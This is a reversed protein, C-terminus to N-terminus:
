RGRPRTPRRRKPRRAAAVVAAVADVVGALPLHASRWRVAPRRISRRPTSTPARATTSRAATARSRWPAAAALGAAAGGRGRGGGGGAGAAAPPPPPVRSSQGSELNVLFMGSSADDGGGGGRGGGGAAAATLAIVHGEPAAHSRWGTHRSLEVAARSARHRELRHASRRRSRRQRAAADAPRGRPRRRPWGRRRTTSTAIRRIAIAIACRWPGCRRRPKFGGQSAIGTPTSETSTFVVYRGDASWVANNESYHVSDDSIHREEGGAIPAIYVHSRLTRDQKSFMSGSATPRCRCPDSAASTAPVSSPAKGDAVTYSYLKKDAATYFLAKSDPTWVLAGKENDLDTIKKPARGDPDTVWVEDRGSRDSIFAVVQRGAVVEAPRQAVVMKDPLIRTIDGRDTAITLLQGRASIVARRGSPSLDFADVKNTVTEFEVENEKEDTVIDLKIENTRGSAVDLKWIGFNEEYVITKGDSSMSPWFLAGTAHKTVQVPQGSRGLRSDQLHQQREPPRRPQRAQHEQREAAPRRRFLDCGDAAGCRGSATTASTPSCSATPRRASTPSGCTRRTAAAIIAARGRRPIGTSSLRSATRRTARGTAGTWRCAATGARRQGRDRLADRREPVRGRWSGGRFLVKQSDRAWAVVEDNGTHFTLRKPVGGTAAVIFVDNNGYRNSSFAVWKGDPSFRPYTERAANDTLRQVNTGDEAAIWIDGLYSFVVKGGHYDPHRALKVPEAAAAVAWACVILVALVLKKRDM